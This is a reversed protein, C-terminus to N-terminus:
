CPSGRWRRNDQVQHLIAVEVQRPAADDADDAGVAGALGREEAHDDALLLGVGARDLQALGDHEGVDVLVAVGQVVLVRDELLDGVALVLM